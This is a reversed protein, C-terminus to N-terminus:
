GTSLREGVQAAIQPPVDHVLRFIDVAKAEDGLDKVEEGVSLATMYNGLRGTRKFTMHRASERIAAEAVDRLM